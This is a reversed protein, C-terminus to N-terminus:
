SLQQLGLAAAIAPLILDSDVLTALDAFRVGDPHHDVLHWATALAL